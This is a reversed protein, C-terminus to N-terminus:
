WNAIQAALIIATINTDIKTNFITAFIKCFMANNVKQKNLRAENKRLLFERVVEAREAAQM